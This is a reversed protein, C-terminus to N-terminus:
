DTVTFKIKELEIEDWFIQFEFVGPKDVLDWQTFRFYRRDVIDPTAQIIRPEFELNLAKSGDAKLEFIKTKLLHPANDNLKIYFGFATESGSIIRDKTVSNTAKIFQIGTNPDLSVLGSEVELSYSPTAFLANLVILLTIFKM